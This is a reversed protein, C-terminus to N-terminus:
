TLGHRTRLVHKQVKGLATRPLDDVVLLERPLKFPALHPQCWVRLEDITLSTGAELVAVAVGVEGWRADPRAVVAVEAIAPHTALIAEVEVPYVNEGGTIYVDRLRDSIFVFGDADRYGVDGTRYWDGVFATATAEPNEWYGSFLNPGRLWLEGAVGPAADLGDNGVIRLDTHLAPRGASTPHTFAEDYRVVVATPGSETAGYVQAVPIGRDLFPAMVELPVVSSGTTIGVLCSLDVDGFRPHAAVAQLMTPVLLTQTPRHREILDLVEGPDFRRTLVVQGGVELTPLVQINLGGVHFTPLCAIILDDAGLVQQDIGNQVTHLIANQTLVAGKPTGTTGSTYVMLVPAALSGVPVPGAASSGLSPFPDLDLDRVPCPPEAAALAPGFGDTVLVLRPRSDALQISIEPPTLRNNIPVFIAGLRACAFLVEFLELRNLGCFAVRDGPEVGADALGAATDKIRAALTAYTVARGEVHFAVRETAAWREIGSDLRSM